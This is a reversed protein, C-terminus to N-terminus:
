LKAASAKAELRSLAPILVANFQESNKECAMHGAGQIVDLSADKLKKEMMQSAKMFGKDREGVIIACPVAVKDLNRAVALPGGLDELELFLADDDRQYYNGRCANILGQVDTHGKRTDSGVLADLGKAEYKAALKDATKNWGLRGKDSGFGPGTGYLVFARVYSPYKFYFLLADMGGMSHGVFIASKLKCADLVAKMDEVQSLKSYKGLDSPSESKAHGRMDYSICRYSHSLIPIQGSWLQSGSGFGHIFLLPPKRGGTDEFYLGVGDYSTTFPM